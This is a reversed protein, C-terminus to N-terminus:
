LSLNIPDIIIKTVVGWIRFDMDETIPVPPFKPNAPLLRVANSNIIYRKVTFEGNLVAVVIMNNVPTISKDVVLLAGPPIFANIMSEGDVKVAFTSLPRPKLYANFDIEEEMYDMAPSPFGAPVSQDYLRLTVCETSAIRYVKFEDLGFVVEEM